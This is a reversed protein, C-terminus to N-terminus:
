ERSCIETPLAAPQLIVDDGKVFDDMFLLQEPEKLGMEKIRNRDQENDPLLRGQLEGGLCKLAAAALVGEPAGRHRGSYGRWGM